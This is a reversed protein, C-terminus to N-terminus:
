PGWVLIVHPLEQECHEGDGGDVDDDARQEVGNNKRFVLGPRLKIRRGPILEDALGLPEPLGHELALVPQHPPFEFQFRIGRSWGFVHVRREGLVEGDGLARQADEELAFATTRAPSVNSTGGPVACLGNLSVAERTTTLPGISGSYASGSSNETNRACAYRIRRRTVTSCDPASLAAAFTATRGSTRSTARRRELELAFLTTDEKNARRRPEQAVACVILFVNRATSGKFRKFRQVRSGHIGPQKAVAHTYEDVPYTKRTLRHETVPGGAIQDTSADDDADGCSSWRCRGRLWSCYWPRIM